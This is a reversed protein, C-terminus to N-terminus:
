QYTRQLRNTILAIEATTARRGLVMAGYCRMASFSAPTGGNNFCGLAVPSTTGSPTGSAAGSYVLVGDLYLDVTSADAVLVAVHDQNRIDVGPSPFINAFSHAGWGGGIYGLSNIGIFARRNGASDGGGILAANGTASNFALAMTLAATPVFPTVVRDDSGDFLFYPKGSNTKYVARQTSTAQLAHNGDVRKISVAGFEAVQGPTMGSASNDLNLTRSTATATFFYSLTTDTASSTYNTAGTESSMFAGVTPSSGNPKRAIISLRYTAGVVLGSITQTARSAVSTGTSTVSLRGDAAALTSNSATWGTTGNSFDGNTVLETAQALQQALTRSGWAHDDLALGVPDADAAVATSGLSTTFLEDLETWDGFLFGDEGSAFLSYLWGDRVGSNPAHPNGIQGVAGPALLM